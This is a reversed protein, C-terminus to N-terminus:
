KGRAKAFCTPDLILAAQALRTAEQTRGAACAEDYAKLLEAIVKAPGHSPVGAAECEEAAAKTSKTCCPADMRTVGIQQLVRPDIPGFCSAPCCPAETRTVGTQRPKDEENVIVRPTVLVYVTQTEHAIGVNKFLRNVYPVRCLVPPGFETCVQVEKKLGGLLVTGGDPITLKKEIRLTNLKPQQLFQTFQVAKGDSGKLQVTVPFLATPSSPADTQNIDLDLLVSRRDASIKPCASMRFGTVVEETKPACVPQGDRQVVEVGTVFKQKDTCDVHAMQGNLVTMKPAQMINARRDGQAAELFQAVQKDNLFTGRDSACKIPDEACKVEMKAPCPGCARDASVNFDVGIREFYVDPVSVVRVELVVQTDQERRLKELLGAVQEQVDPTQNVVLTMTLPFYDITGRGGHSAWSKPAVTEQITKILDDECTAVAKAPEGKKGSDTAAAGVPVVLEAVAYSVLVLRPQTTTTCRAAACAAPPAPAQAHAAATLLGAALLATTRALPTLM